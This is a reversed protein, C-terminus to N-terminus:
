LRRYIAAPIPYTRKNLVAGLISVKADELIRKATRASDRRTDNSAIVLVIGDSLGGLIVADSSVSLAPADMLVFDFEARLESLRVGIRSPNVLGSPWSHASGSPMIWLRSTRTGTVFHQIQETQRMADSLGPAADTRFHEHLSPCWFNGDVICVRNQTHTALLEAAKACVWTCGSRRNVSSFAVIRPLEETPASIFLRHVLRAVEVEAAAYGLPPAPGVPPSQSFPHHQTPANSVTDEIVGLQQRMQKAM